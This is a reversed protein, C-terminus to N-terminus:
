PWTVVARVQDIRARFAGPGSGAGGVSSSEVSGASHQSVRARMERTLPDVLDDPHALNSLTIKRDTTVLDHTDLLEWAANPHNWIEIKQQAPLRSAATEVILDIRSPVARNLAFTLEIRREALPSEGLAPGVTLRQDDSRELQALGGEELEGAEIAMTSPEYFDVRPRIRFVKGSWYDTVYLWGDPGLALDTITSFGWAFRLLDREITDDAVGDALAGPLALSMRDPTLEVHYIQPGNQDGFVLDNWLDEPFRKSALFRVATIGICEFWSLDPDRYTAGPLMVLDIADYPVFGNELYAADRADPGMILLWGSNMGPVARELEDWNSPGNEGFWLQGTLPDFDMGLSNRFGYVFWRRLAPDSQSAFPNDAPTSGDPAIRFIGGGFSSGSTATNQEVRPATFDGRQKDGVQGYLMGDPGFCLVGSDHAPADAQSADYPCTFLPGFPEVLASGNFRYRMVHNGTWPGGDAGSTIGHYLYVYGNQEFRPNRTIGLGGQVPVTLDLATGVVSGNKVHLVRGDYNQVVLADERGIFVISAPRDLGSAWTEILLRGDALSQAPADPALLITVALVLITKM